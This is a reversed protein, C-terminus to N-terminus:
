NSFLKRKMLRRTVVNLRGTANSHAIAFQIYSIFLALLIYFWQSYRDNYYNEVLWLSALVVVVSLLFVTWVTWQVGVRQMMWRALRNREHTVSKMYKVTTYCDFFKSVFLLLSATYLM